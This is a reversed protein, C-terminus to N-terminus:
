EDASFGNYFEGNLYKRLACGEWMTAIYTDHYPRQEIVYESIILATNDRIDLVRWSYGGFAASSGIEM